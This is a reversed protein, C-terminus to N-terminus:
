PGRRPAAEATSKLLHERARTLLFRRTQLPLRHRLGQVLDQHCGRLVRRSRCPCPWHGKIVKRGLVELFAICVEIDEFGLLNSLMEKMGDAGHSWEGIPFPVGLEFGAQGLFFTRVPGNLFSCIDLPERCRVVLDEPLYLCASGDVVNVHRELVRPIRGAVEKVTPLGLVDKLDLLIEVQFGALFRGEHEVNFAGKIIRHGDTVVLRLGPHGTELADMIEADSEGRWLNPM